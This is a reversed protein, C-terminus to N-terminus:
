IVRVTLSLVTKVGGAATAVIPLQYVGAPTRPAGPIAPAPNSNACGAWTMVLLALLVM